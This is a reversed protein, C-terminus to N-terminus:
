QIPMEGPQEGQGLMAEASDEPYPLQDPIEGMEAKHHMLHEDFKQRVEASSAFYEPRGMFAQMTIIHVRHLDHPGIIIKDQPPTKGDGFLIINEMMARRRNQWGVEDGVPIDLGQERVKWNFEDLTIRSEKFAEKLEVKQQEPSVPVESAITVSVEDPFPIANQSLNMTGAEADLVIGALSDDLNSISVIKQDTWTDKLIRLLARYIGAYGEAINKATPSIPIGSAEYLFGLGAGSDVRGPADGKMIAEPQNAQRDLLNAALQVAQLMPATMKAPMVNDIKLEPSTYDPEFVVRKIGDQGRQALPPTGLTAPWLQLGYLDFDSVAQFISSLAVELENNLPILQDIYSRGWFSGVTVDRIIQIPMYYKQATHDHRYLERLETMGAYIAYEALYGDSTETWVEVLQTVPVNLEDKKKKGFKGSAMGDDKTRTQIFFGGGSGAYSVSGDGLSGRDIPMQGSPLEIDALGKYKKSGKNPTISLNKIWDLPVYRIRMIGRVDNPGAVDVPISLLEWPPIIDIGQSDPGEIWLGLGLTGYMLLPPMTALEAKSVKDQSIAADLVVQAVSAKRLGDLSIGKKRVAPKLDLSLLRGLQGMYKAIIEEYRFKLVGTENKYAISVSGENYNLSSFERIGQLYYQAIAWKVAQPNRKSKGDSVMLAVVSEAQKVDSPLSYTYAM